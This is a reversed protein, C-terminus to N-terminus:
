CRFICLSAPEPPAITCLSIFTTHPEVINERFSIEFFVTCSYFVSFDRNREADTWEGEVKYYMTERGADQKCEHADMTCGDCVLCGHESCSCREEMLLSIAVHADNCVRCYIKGVCFGTTGVLFVFLLFFPVINYGNRKMHAFIFRIHFFMRIRVIKLLYKQCQLSANYKGM